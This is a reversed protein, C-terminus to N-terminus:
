FGGFGLASGLTLLYRRDPRQGAYSGLEEGYTAVAVRVIAIDFSFGATLSTQNLGVQLAIVPLDLNMGLHCHKGIPEEGWPLNIHSYDFAFSLSSASRSPGHRRELRRNKLGGIPFRVGLGAVINDEIRTPADQQQATGFSTKGIDHWVFSTLVDTRGPLPLRYQVGVDGGFGTGSEGFTDTIAARNGSLEALAIDQEGGTRNIVKLTAGLRFEQHAGGSIAGGALFTTDRTFRMQTKPYGLNEMDFDTHEDYAVGLAFHPVTLQTIDGLNLMIHKGAFKSLTSATSGSSKGLDKV